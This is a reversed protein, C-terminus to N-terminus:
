GRKLIDAERAIQQKKADRKSTFPHGLERARNQVAIISRKLASAARLATAGRDLFQQLKSLEEPTWSRTISERM